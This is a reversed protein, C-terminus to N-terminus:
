ATGGAQSTPLGASEENELKKCFHIGLAGDRGDRKSGDKNKDESRRYTGRCQRPQSGEQILIRATQERCGDKRTLNKGATPLVREGATPGSKGATTTKKEGATPGNKEVRM